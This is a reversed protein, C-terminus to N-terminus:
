PDERPKSTMVAKRVFARKEAPDKIEDAILLYWEAENRAKAAARKVSIWAIAGIHQTLATEAQM